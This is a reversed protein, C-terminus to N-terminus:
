NCVIRPGMENGRVCLERKVRTVRGGCRDMHGSLARSTRKWQLRSILPSRSLSLFFCFVFKHSHTSAKTHKGAKSIEMPNISHNCTYLFLRLSPATNTSAWALKHIKRHCAVILRRVKRSMKVIISPKQWHYHWVPICSHTHCFSNYKKHKM